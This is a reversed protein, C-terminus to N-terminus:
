GSFSMLRRPILSIYFCFYISVDESCLSSSTRSKHWNEISVDQCDSVPEDTIRQGKWSGESTDPGALYLTTFTTILTNQRAQTKSPASNRLQCFLQSQWSDTLLIPFCIAELLVVFWVGNCDLWSISVHCAYYFLRSSFNECWM